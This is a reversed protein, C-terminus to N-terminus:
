LIPSSVMPYVTHIYIPYCHLLLCGLVRGWPCGAGDGVPYGTGPPCRLSGAGDGVPYGSGPSFVEAVMGLAWGV